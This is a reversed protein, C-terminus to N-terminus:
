HESSTLTVQTPGQEPQEDATDEISGIFFNYAEEETPM